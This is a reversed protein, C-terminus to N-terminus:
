TLISSLPRVELGKGKSFIHQYAMGTKPELSEQSDGGFGGNLGKVFVRLLSVHMSTSCVRKGGGGM